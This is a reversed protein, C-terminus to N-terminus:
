IRSVSLTSEPSYDDFLYNKFEMCAKWESFFDMQGCATISM